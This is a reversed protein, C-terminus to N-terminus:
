FIVIASDASISLEFHGTSDSQTRAMSDDVSIIVRALPEGQENTVRGNLEIQAFSTISGAFCILFFKIMVVVTLPM